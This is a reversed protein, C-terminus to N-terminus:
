KMTRALLEAMHEMQLDLMGYGLFDVISLAGEEPLM